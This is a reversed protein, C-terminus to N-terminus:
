VPEPAPGAGMSEPAPGACTVRNRGEDRAQFLAQEARDLTGFVDADYGSVAALGISVTMSFSAGGVGVPTEAVRLRLKDLVRRTDELATEPLVLVFRGGDFRGFLDTSRIADAVTVSLARIAADGAAHGHDGNITKLQDIDIVAVVAVGGYRRARDFERGAANLVARRNLSGTLPDISAATALAARAAALDRFLPRVLFLGQGALSLLLAALLTSQVVGSALTTGIGLGATLGLAVLYTTARQPIDRGETQGM